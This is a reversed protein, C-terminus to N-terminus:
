LPRFSLLIVGDNSGHCTQCILTGIAYDDFYINSGDSHVLHDTYRAYEFSTCIYKQQYSGFNMYAETGVSVNKLTSFGQNNHDSLFSVGDLSILSASDSADIVAQSATDGPTYYAAVNIGVSPIVWRGYAGGAVSRTACISSSHSSAGCYSCCDPSAEEVTEDTVAAESPAAIDTASLEEDEVPVMDEGIEAYVNEPNGSINEATNSKDDVLVSATSYIDKTSPASNFDSVTQVPLALTAPFAMITCAILAILAACFLSTKKM